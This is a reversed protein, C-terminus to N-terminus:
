ALAVLAGRGGLVVVWYEDSGDEDEEGDEDGDDSSEDDEDFDCDDDSDDNDIVDGRKRKEKVIPGKAVIFGSFVRLFLLLSYPACCEFM